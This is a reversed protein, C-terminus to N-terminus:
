QAFFFDNLDRVEEVNMDLQFDFYKDIVLILEDFSLYGDGDVDLSIFNEPIDVASELRYEGRILAMYEEVHERAMANNRLQMSAEFEDESVTVGRDDVWARRDTELEQDLYDPVGDMDGDLPCGLTDVEVGYPTGPCRDTVDLVFDGDEDDFFIPDFEADAFMLDVTRTTPDSFLDFHVSLHSYIYSDNGKDGQVSTGEYAVNDLLDSLAYHYSMGLSFFARRNIRFHAGLTLPIVLSRQNYDGLGFEQEERLRLDTEFDYDRYLLNSPGVMTEDVDRITGDSWYYYDLGNADSLDGKASYNLNGLGLSVYPRVLAEKELFHGFRYELNAGYVAISTQFNLNRVIDSHSYSNGSLTGSLFYFNATFYHKRDVFTAVNVQFANNGIAPTLYSNHVDGRFNLVGYSFSVVPKYVPNEVTDIRQLLSDYDIEQGQAIFPVVVILLLM